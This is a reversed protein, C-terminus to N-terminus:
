LKEQLVSKLLEIASEDNPDSTGLEGKFAKTLINSKLKDFVLSKEDTFEEMINFRNIAKKMKEIIIEQEAIPPVPFEISKLITQNLFERTSGKCLNRIQEKVTGEVLFMYVFFQPLIIEKNLTLKIINTSIIAPIIKEPVICLEGVTGSRSIIIDDEQVLFSTLEKLKDETIFNKNKYIFEGNNISDIGLVPIGEAVYDMKKLATGFPGTTMSKRTPMILEEIKLVKWRENKNLYKGALTNKYYIAKELLIKGQAEEILQIAEEIKNFLREVKEAIRKQENLPAVPILVEKLNKQNLSVQNVSRNVRDRIDKKFQYSRMYYQVYLPFLKENFLRIRLLNMGHVLPLLDEEILATKGVHEISNIHSLVIDGSQYYDTEKISNIKEIYGIRNLDIENNQVSEIRTVKVGLGDKNQKTTTGNKIEKTITDINTWVWNGPVEYPQEEEVVLVEEILEEITKQKKSM